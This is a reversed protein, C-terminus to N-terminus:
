TLSGHMVDIYREVVVDLPEVFRRTDNIPDTADSMRALCRIVAAQFSEVTGDFQEGAHMCYECISGGESHYVVPLGVAMAELVHNAGAEARSATLYIDHKPLEAVLGHVDLPGLHRKFQLPRETRGIYTFEVPIGAICTLREIDDYTDFGKANNNSWHHTVIRLKDHHKAVRQTEFFAARAGNKIVVEVLRQQRCTIYSSMTQRAFESPYVVVDANAIVNSWLLPLEPKGHTGVDGVRCFTLGGTTNAAAIIHEGTVGVDNPRPDFCFYVDAVDAVNYTVRHGHQILRRTLESVFANGGGWPGIVPRRNLYILM